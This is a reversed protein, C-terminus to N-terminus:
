PPSTSIKTRVQHAIKPVRDTPSCRKRTGPSETQSRSPPVMLFYLRCSLCVLPARGMTEIPALCRINKVDGAYHDHDDNDCAIKSHM